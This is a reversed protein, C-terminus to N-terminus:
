QEGRNYLWMDREAVAEDLTDFIGLSHLIYDRRIEVRYKDGYFYINREGTSNPARTSNIAQQSESVYRLNCRRDDIRNRNIHDIEEGERIPQGVICHHLTVTKQKDESMRLTTVAYGDSSIYWSYEELLWEDEPDVLVSNTALVM